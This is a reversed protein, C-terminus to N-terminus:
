LEKMPHFIRRQGFRRDDSKAAGCGEWLRGAIGGNVAVDSAADRRADMEGDGTAAEQM